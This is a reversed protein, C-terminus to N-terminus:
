SAGTKVESLESILRELPHAAREGREQFNIRVRDKLYSPIETDSPASDLIVPVIPFDREKSEHFAAKVEEEQYPGMKGTIGFFIVMARVSKLAENFQDLFSKGLRLENDDFWPKVGRESLQKVLRAVVPKDETNYSLFVDYMEGGARRRSGARTRKQGPVEDPLGRRLLEKVRVQWGTFRTLFEDDWEPSDPKIYQQGELFLKNYILKAAPPVIALQSELEVATSDLFICGGPSSLAMYSEGTASPTSESLALAPWRWASSSHAASTRAIEFLCQMLLWSYANREAELMVLSKNSKAEHSLYAAFDALWPEGFWSPRNVSAYAASLLHGLPAKFEQSLKAALAKLEPPLPDSPKYHRYAALAQEAKKSLNATLMVDRFSMSANHIESRLNKYGKGASSKKENTLESMLKVTISKDCVLQIFRRTWAINDQWFRYRDSRVTVHDPDCIIAQVDNGAEALQNMLQVMCVQGLHYRLRDELYVNELSWFTLIRRGPYYETLPVNQPHVKGILSVIGTTAQEM